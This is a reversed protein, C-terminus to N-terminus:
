YAASLLKAEILKGNQLVYSVNKEVSPCCTADDPGQVLIKMAVSGEQVTFDQVGEGYGSVPLSDAYALAGAERAFVALHTAYANGGNTAELVFLVAKDSVGDGNLDGEAFKRAEVNEDAQDFIFAQRALAESIVSEDSAAASPEAASQPEAQAPACSVAEAQAATLGAPVECGALNIDGAQTLAAEKKCGVLALVALMAGVLMGVKKM